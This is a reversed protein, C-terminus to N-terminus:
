QPGTRVFEAEARHAGVLTQVASLQQGRARVSTAATRNLGDQVDREFRLDATLADVQAQRHAATGEVELWALAQAKRYEREAEAAALSAERMVELGADILGSFRELREELETLTMGLRGKRRRWAVM